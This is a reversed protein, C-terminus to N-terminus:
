RNARKMAERLFDITKAESGGASVNISREGQIAGAQWGGTEPAVFGQKGVDPLKRFGPAGSPPSHYDASVIQLMVTGTGDDKVGTWQCGTGMAANRGPNVPGGGYNAIEAVTFMKCQPNSAAEGKDDGSLVAATKQAERVNSPDSKNCAVLSFVFVLLLGSTAIRM